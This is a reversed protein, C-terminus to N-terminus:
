AAPHFPQERLAPDKMGGEELAVTCALHFAAISVKVVCDAELGKLSVGPAFGLVGVGERNDVATKGNVLKSARLSDARVNPGAQSGLVVLILDVLESLSHPNEIFMNFAQSLRLVLELFDFSWHWLIGAAVNAVHVVSVRFNIFLM